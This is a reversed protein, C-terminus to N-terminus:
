APRRQSCLCNTLYAGTDTGGANLKLESLKDSLRNCEEDFKEEESFDYLETDPNPATVTLWGDSQVGAELLLTLTPKQKTFAYEAESCLLTSNRESKPPWLFMHSHCCRLLLSCSVATILLATDASKTLDQVLMTVSNLLYFCSLPM